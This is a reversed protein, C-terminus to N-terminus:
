EWVKKDFLFSGTKAFIMDLQCLAQDLPRRLLSCIDYARFGKAHMFTTVDHLLPIGQYLEIVSVEMLVLEASDLAKAGGKLVELEAGQVDLKLLDPSGFQSSQLVDDLTEMRRQTVRHPHGMQDSFLSAATAATEFQHFEVGDRDVAGLLAIRVHLRKPDLSAIADLSPKKEQQAEVMLISAEPFISSALSTWEGAYAGIDVIRAPKFGLARLNELSWRMSPINFRHFFEEKITEKMRTPLARAALRFLPNM